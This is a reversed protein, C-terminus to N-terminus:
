KRNARLVELIDLVEDRIAALRHNAVSLLSCASDRTDYAQEDKTPIPIDGTIETAVDIVDSIQKLHFTAWDLRREAESMGGDPTSQKSSENM